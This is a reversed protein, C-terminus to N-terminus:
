FRWTRFLDFGLQRPTQQQIQSANSRACTLDSSGPEIGAQASYISNFRYELKLGFNEVFNSANVVCLGTSLGVFWQNGIQKGLIARTNLLNYYYPDTSRVSPDYGATQLEVIDLVNKPIANTLLNGGYRIAVSALQSQYEAGTNDLAIAPEGTILYSLLDSQSLPLNDPNDLSLLPRELTGGITVRVRIDRVNATRQRPQRITHIARIDLTPNLDPTGFFRLSGSEVDFTPQVFPDVLNLRYTGRVANLTGELALQSSEGTQPNKSLTVNLSGGLKVNAESSRLWVQDGINVQVNQLSLNKAFDNPTEPLLKRDRSLLTDVIGAFEPDSLDVIKKTILEPIYITGRDVRVAGTVTAAKYAGSLTMVSDTSIDLSALGPKEIIHFSEARAKLAFEPNGYSKLNVFGDVSMTGRKVGQTEASLRKVFVTDRDLTVDANIRQLQTGANTLTAAGDTISFKGALVPQKVTGAVDVNAVLAGRANRIGPIFAELIGLDVNDTRVNGRVSDGVLRVDRVALRAKSYSLLLSDLSGGGPILMVHAPADLRYSSGDSVTVLGSDLSIRTTDGALSASGRLTSVVGNASAIAADFVAHGSSDVQANANVTRFGAFGASVSDAQLSITGNPNKVVDTLAFKGTLAAISRGQMSLDNGSVTGSVALDSPKGNMEGAIRISGRLSDAPLSTASNLYRKVDSLSDVSAVFALKGEGADTMAVSGSASAHASASRVLLTDIYAMGKDVRVAADSSTIEIKEITGKLSTTLKGTGVIVSDGIFDVAYDGALNTRPAKPKETLARFNLGSVTGTGHAGYDPLNADVIGTYALTGGAGTLTTVVDLAPAQGKVTMPGTYNGRLQVSPYSHAITTMSVPAAELAMDYTMYEKGDTVRGSGTFRSTPLNGDHHVIDANSFRVDLWSSDLRTTGSVTGKLELFEPNLFQITRLDLTEINVDLGHFTTNAPYLIDLEGRASGRTIAGPVHADAFTFHSDDVRFHTLPGGKAHVTGTINGQWDYPFPKGNLARILDFNLPKAEINVDKVALVPDGVGYTMSGVLRSRTSSVDMRSIAYDMIRPHGVNNMDVDLRGGGTRPLTPYVWAVDNLSVSDGVIHVAYRTATPGGWFVKGKVSGTSAPLDFHPMDLWASDGLFRVSGALNHIDLPPDSSRASAKAIQVFRGATDPVSVRVYSFSSRLGTFRWTRAFGERTRRVESPWDNGPADRTLSGLAHTIASDRKYGKLDPSVHWPLTLIVQGNRIDASDMVIFDGFGSGTSPGQPGEPFIRRWNWSGNEHQRLHVLPHEADLHSILIRRDLIDRVDYHVTVRGTSVFLSDEEDRIDVSDITVGSFLGGSIKGIYIKGRVKGAVWSQVFSRVQGQGYSTQTVAIVILFVVVFVGLLALASFTVIRQRRSM